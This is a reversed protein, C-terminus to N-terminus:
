AHVKLEIQFTKRNFRFHRICLFAVLLAPFASIWIKAKRNRSVRLSVAEFYGEKHFIAILGIDKGTQLGTTDSYVRISPGKKQILEFGDTYISGISSEEFKTVLQGDFEEPHELCENLAIWPHSHVSFYSLALLILCLVIIAALRRLDM